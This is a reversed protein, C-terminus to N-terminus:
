RRWRVGASWSRPPMPYDDFVAWDTDLLNDIRAFVDVGARDLAAPRWAAGVGALLVDDLPALEADDGYRDLEAELSADVTLGTRVEWVGDLRLSVAPTALTQADRRWMWAAGLRLLDGSGHRWAVTADLGQHVFAGSNGYVPPWGPQAVRILNDGEAHYVAATTSWAGWSRDAALEYQWLSEPELRSRDGAFFPLYQQAVAPTKAGRAASLTVAGHQDPLFAAKMQPIWESDYTDSLQLRVGAGLQWRADPDWSALVYPATTTQHEDVEAFGPNGNLNFTGGNRDLDLGGKLAWRDHELAGGARLGLDRARTNGETQFDNHVYSTHGRLFASWGDSAGHFDVEATRQRIDGRGQEPTAYPASEPGPSDFYSDTGEVLASVTWLRGLPATLRLRASQVDSDDGGRYGDTATAAASATVQFPGLPGSHRVHAGWTGDSGGAAQVETAPGRRTIVQVAGAFAQGGFPVSAPGRIVEVREVPGLPHADPLAHGWFGVIQPRGDVLILLGDNPVSGVGRIRLAWPPNGSAGAAVLGAQRYSVGPVTAAADLATAGPRRRLRSLEEAPVVQVRSGHVTVVGLSDGHVVLEELSWVSDVPAIEASAPGSLAACLVAIMAIDARSM